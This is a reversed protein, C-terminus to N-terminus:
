LSTVKKEPSPLFLSFVACGAVIGVLVFVVVECNIDLLAGLMYSSLATGLRGMMLSLCVAMARLHTPFVDVVLSNLISVCMGPLAVFICSLPLVEGSTHAFHLGVIALGSVGLSFAIIKKNEIHNVIQGVLLYALASTLGIILTNQFVLPSIRGACTSTINLEETVGALTKNALERVASMQKTTNASLGATVNTVESLDGFTHAEIADSSLSSFNRVSSFIECVTASQNAHNAAYVEIRNFLDPLWLLLSNFSAYIGFQILCALLTNFVHPSMFLPATQTWIHQLIGQKYDVQSTPSPSFSTGELASDQLIAHVTYEEPERQRNVAFVHQLVKIAEEEKGVAFYYKPSEPLFFLICATSISPIGCLVVFLRWPRYAVWPLSVSWEMPIVLWALGPLSIIGISIFVCAVIIARARNETTHFEGLYVYVVASPGCIFFGNFFRFILFLWFTHAFSGVLACVFDSLLTIILIKKRGQTDALYGWLHSSAIMGIYCVASLLGKDESTMQFDCDAAPMLYSVCLLEVIMSVLSM